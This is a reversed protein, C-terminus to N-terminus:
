KTVHMSNQRTAVVDSSSGPSNIALTDNPTTMKTPIVCGGSLM